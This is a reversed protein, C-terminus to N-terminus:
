SVCECARLQAYPTRKWVHEKILFLRVVFLEFEIHNENRSKEGTRRTYMHTTWVVCRASNICVCRCLRANQLRISDCVCAYLGLKRQQQQKARRWRYSAGEEPNNPKMVLEGDQRTHWHRMTSVTILICKSHSPEHEIRLSLSQQTAYHVSRM